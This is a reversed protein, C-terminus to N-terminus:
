VMEAPRLRCSAADEPAEWQLTAHDIGFRERLMACAEAVVGPGDKRLPPGVLHATLAVQTTSLAWIHLDHVEVVGPLGALAEEVAGRDVGRPVADMALEVSQRLVGWTGATIVAVILLSTVPDIWRAGTWLVLGGAVVVGLSVLADSALHLFAARVNLDDKSGRLFLLATGGNVVIGAAAVAMVIGGAVESPHWFRQVAEVAIAGAGLLLVMANVLAALISSRGYGYTHLTTPRWRGMSAAGWSLLLGLVDGANHLADALLAVSGALLGFGVQLVVFLANAGASLAFRAGGQAPDPGHAHGHGHSHGHHGPGHHGPGQHGTGQHGPGQHGHEGHDHGM